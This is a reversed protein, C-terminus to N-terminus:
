LNFYGSGFSPSESHFTGTKQAHALQAASLGRLRKESSMLLKDRM